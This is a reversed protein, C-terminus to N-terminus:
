LHVKGNVKNRDLMEKIAGRQYFILGGIKSFAISGENRWVELTKKSIGMENMMQKNDLVENDRGNGTLSKEIQDVKSLITEWQSKEMIIIDMFWFYVFRQFRIGDNM